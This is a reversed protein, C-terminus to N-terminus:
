LEILPDKPQKGLQGPCLLVTALMVRNITSHEEYGRQIAGAQYELSQVILDNVMSTPAVEKGAIRAGIMAGYLRFPLSFHSPHLARQHLSHLAQRRPHGQLFQDYLAELGWGLPDDTVRPKYFELSKELMAIEPALSPIVTSSDKNQRQRELISFVILAVLTDDSAYARQLSPPPTADVSLKWRIGGQSGDGNPGADFFYPFVSKGIRCGDEVRGARSLALLWKDIYHWYQGDYSMGADTVQRHHAKGIRLGVNGNPSAMDKTMQMTKDTDSRPQGLCDHVVHILRHAAARYTEAKEPTQQQELQDALSLYALVGFADTWLYRRQLGDHCLGAEDSPMPKPFQPDEVPGYVSELLWQAAHIPNDSSYQTTAMNRKLKPRGLFETSPLVSPFWLSPFLLTLQRRTILTPTPTPAILFSPVVTPRLCSIGILFATKQRHRFM